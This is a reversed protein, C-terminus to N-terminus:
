RDLAGTMTATTNTALEGIVWLEDYHGTDVTVGSVAGPAPVDLILASDGINSVTMTFAGTALDTSSVVVTGDPISPSQATAAGVSSLALGAAVFGILLSRRLGDTM